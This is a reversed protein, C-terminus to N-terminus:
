VAHADQWIRLVIPQAHVPFAPFSGKHMGPDSVSPKRQLRHHPFRERMGACICVVDMRNCVRKKCTPHIVITHRICVTALFWWWWLVWGKNNHHWDFVWWLRYFSVNSIMFVTHCPLAKWMVPVTKPSDVPFWGLHGNIPIKSAKKTTLRLLRSFM